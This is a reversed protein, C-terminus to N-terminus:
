SAGHLGELLRSRGRTPRARAAAYSRFASYTNTTDAAPPLRTTPVCGHSCFDCSVDHTAIFEKMLEFNQKLFEALRTEEEQRSGLSTTRPSRPPQLFLASPQANAFRGQRLAQAQGRLLAHVSALLSRWQPRDGRHGTPSCTDAGSLESKAEGHLPRLRRVTRWGM